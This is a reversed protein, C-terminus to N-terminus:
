NVELMKKIEVLIPEWGGGNLTEQYRKDGDGVKAYDGQTATLVTHGNEELLEYTVTLYNEAIDAIASNPDITTYALFRGPQIDVIHGKVPVMEVGNFVGKWVLPSGSKWDSIAECGFMYKRTQEPNTLADWVKAATAQITISNKVILPYDMTFFIPYTLIKTNDSVPIYLFQYLLSSM